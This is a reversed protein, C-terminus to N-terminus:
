RPWGGTTIYCARFKGKGTDYENFRELCGALADPGDDHGQPYTLFQTILEPTDQGDPFLIAGAEILTATREIRFNKNERNNIRKIRSAIPNYGTRSAWDDFDDLIRAQGYNTEIAAMFRAKYRAHLFTYTDHYYAFFKSNEIQRVWVNLVYFKRESKVYGMTIIAKFCGKDGWAPDAYMWVRTFAEKPLTKWKKFWNWKFITGEIIAQGMMERLYNTSGLTARVGALGATPWQAEWVSTGDKKEVPYRLLIRRGSILHRRTKPSFTDKQAKIDDELLSQFQCISYNPHTLNGLWIVRGTGGTVLAGLMEGLIKDLKRKGVSM